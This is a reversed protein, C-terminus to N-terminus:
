HPVHRVSKIAEIAVFVVVALALPLIWSRPALARSDFLEHMFPAYTYVLQVAILALASWWIAPNGRLVAPTVSSRTIFRCNFLYALQALVLTLVAVTRAHDLDATVALAAEFALLTSGGVLVSVILVFGLEGRTIIPGGPTRPPRRMVDPEAPEYALALSLCVATIMNVWLVQM